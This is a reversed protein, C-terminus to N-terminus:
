ADARGQRRQLLAWVMVAVVALNALLVAAGLTTPTRLLKAIELPVYLGGSLAALWEAWARERYLGYAEVFRLTAYAGAGVALWALRPEQVRSLADLFIHPYKSAPNLHAHEVLREALTNLDKHILAALGTAALLVIAGKLAEFLAIARVALGHPGPRGPRM